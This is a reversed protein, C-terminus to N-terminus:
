KYRRQVRPLIGTYVDRRNTGWRRAVMQGNIEVGDQEGIIVAEDGMAVHMDDPIVVFCQDMCIRGVTKLIRGGVIFENVDDPYRHLGDGYGVPVIAITEEAKTKYAQSYGVGHGALLRKISVIRSKWDAVRQIGDPLLGDPEFPVGYTVVGTRVMNYRAEPYRLTGESNAMHILPPTISKDKLADLVTNFVKLQARSGDPDSESTHFHSYVGKFDIDPAAALAEALALAQDPMVGMRGMGTDVKMHVRATKGMSKATAQISEVQGVDWAMFDV